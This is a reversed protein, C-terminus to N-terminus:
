PSRAAGLQKTGQIMQSYELEYSPECKLITEIAGAYLFGNKELARISAVNGINATAVVEITGFRGNLKNLLAAVVHTAYGQRWFDRGITYGVDYRSPGEFRYRCFGVVREPANQRHVTFVQGGSRVDVELRLALEEFSKPPPFTLFTYLEDHQLLEFLASIAANKLPRLLVTM